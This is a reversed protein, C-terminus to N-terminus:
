TWGFGVRGFSCMQGGNVRGDGFINTCALQLNPCAQYTWIGVLSHSITGNKWVVFGFTGCHHVSIQLAAFPVERLAFVPQKTQQHQNISDM